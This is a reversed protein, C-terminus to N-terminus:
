VTENEKESKNDELIQLFVEPLALLYNVAKKRGNIDGIHLLVSATSPNTEKADDVLADSEQSFGKKWMLLERRMDKWLISSIFEEIQDRTANVTVQKSM